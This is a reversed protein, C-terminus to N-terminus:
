ELLIRVDDQQHASGVCPFPVVGTRPLRIQNEGLVPGAGDARHSDRVLQVVTAEGIQRLLLWRESPLGGTRRRQPPPRRRTIYAPTKVSYVGRDGLTSTHSYTLTVCRRYAGSAAPTLALLRGDARSQTGLV